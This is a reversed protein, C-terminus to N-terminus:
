LELENIEPTHYMENELCYLKVQKLFDKFTCGEERQPNYKIFENNNKLTKFLSLNNNKWDDQAETFSYNYECIVIGNSVFKLLYPTNKGDNSINFNDKTVNYGKKFLYKAIEKRLIKSQMKYSSKNGEFEIEGMKEREKETM